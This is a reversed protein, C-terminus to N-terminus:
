PAKGRYRARVEPFSKWKRHFWFYLEPTEVVKAELRRTYEDLILAEAEELTKAGSYDIPAQFDLAIKGDRRTTFATIVVAGSRYAFHAPGSPIYTPVGFFISRYGEPGADQDNLVVLTSGRRLSKFIKLGGLSDGRSSRIPIITNGYRTYVKEFEVRMAPNRVPRSVFVVPYGMRAVQYGGLIFNGLHASLVIVGKGASAAERLNGIGSVHFAEGPNGVLREECLVEAVIRGHEAACKRAVERVRGPTAERGLAITLNTEVVCRRILGIRYAFVFLRM